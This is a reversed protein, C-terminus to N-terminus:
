LRTLFTTGPQVEQWGDRGLSSHAPELPIDPWPGERSAPGTETGPSSQKLSLGPPRPSGLCQLVTWSLSSFVLLSILSGPQQPLGQFSGPATPCGHGVPGPAHCLMDQRRPPPLHCSGPTPLEPPAPHPQPTGQLATEARPCSQPVKEAGPDGGHGPTDEVLFTLASLPLGHAAGWGAAAGLESAREEGRESGEQMGEGLFMQRKDKIIAQLAQAGRLGRLQGQRPLLQFDEKKGQRPVWLPATDKGAAGQSGPYWRSTEM